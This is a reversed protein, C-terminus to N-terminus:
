RQAGRVMLWLALLGVATLLAAGNTVALWVVTAAVALCVIGLLVGFATRRPTYSRAFEWDSAYIHHDPTNRLNM